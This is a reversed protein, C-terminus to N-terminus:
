MEGGANPPDPPPEEESIQFHVNRIELEEITLERDLIEEGIPDGALWKPSFQPHDEAKIIQFIERSDDQSQGTYILYSYQGALRSHLFLALDEDKVTSSNLGLNTFLERVELLEAPTAPKSLGVLSVQAIPTLAKLQALLEEKRKTSKPIIWLNVHRYGDSKGYHIRGTGAINKIALHLEVDTTSTAVTMIYSLLEM